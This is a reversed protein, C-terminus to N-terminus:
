TIVTKYACKQVWSLLLHTWNKICLHIWIESNLSSTSACGTSCNTKRYCWWPSPTCRSSTSISSCELRLTVCSTGRTRFSSLVNMNPWTTWFSWTIYVHIQFECRIFGSDAASDNGGRQIRGLAAGSRRRVVIPWFVSIYLFIKRTCCWVQKRQM